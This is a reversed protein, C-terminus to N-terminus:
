FRRAFVVGFILLREGGVFDVDIQPSIEMEGVEFGYEVGVRLLPESGEESVEVGPGAYLKWANAHHAVPAVLVITDFDGRAYEAVAGVGLRPGLRYEYELGLTVGARREETRRDQGTSGLFLGVTHRAHEADRDVEAEIDQARLYAAGQGFV